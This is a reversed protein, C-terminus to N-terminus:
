STWTHHRDQTRFLVQRKAVQPPSFQQQEQHHQHEEQLQLRDQQALLVQIGLPTPSIMKIQFLYQRACTQLTYFQQQKNKRHAEPRQWLRGALCDAKKAQGTKKPKSLVKADEGGTRLGLDVGTDTNVTNVDDAGRVYQKTFFFDLFDVYYVNKSHFVQNIKFNDPWKRKLHYFIGKKLM